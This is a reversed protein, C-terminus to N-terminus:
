FQMCSRHSLNLCTAKLKSTIKKKRQTHKHIQSRTRCSQECWFGATYCLHLPDAIPLTFSSRKSINFRWVQQTAAQKTSNTTKLSSNASLLAPKLHWGEFMNCFVRRGKWQRHWSLTPGAGLPPINVKRAHQQRHLFLGLKIGRLSKRLLSFFLFCCSYSQETKQGRLATIQTLTLTLFAQTGKIEGSRSCFVFNRRKKKAWIRHSMILNPSLLQNTRHKLSKIAWACVQLWSLNVGLQWTPKGMHKEPRTKLECLDNERGFSFNRKLTTFRRPAFWRRKKRKKRRTCEFRMHGSCCNCLCKMGCLARQETGHETFHKKCSGDM